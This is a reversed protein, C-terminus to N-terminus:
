REISNRDNGEQWSRTSPTADIRIETEQINLFLTMRIVVLSTTQIWRQFLTAPSRPFTSAGGKSSHKKTRLKVEFDVHTRKIWCRLSCEIQAEKKSRRQDQGRKKNMNQNCASRLKSKTASAVTARGAKWMGLLCNSRDISQLRRSQTGFVSKVRKREGTNGKWWDSM